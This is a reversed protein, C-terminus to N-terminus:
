QRGGSYRGEVVKAFNRPSVLWELDARFTRGDRGPPARGTLFSSGAVQAFYGRWWEIAEARGLKLDSCVERWRQRMLGKRHDNLVEVRPLTPLAEHYARVLDQHPCDPVEYGKAPAAEPDTPRASPAQGVVEEYRLPSSTIGEERSEEERDHGATVAAPCQTVSRSTKETVGGSIALDHARERQRRKREAATDDERKPQRKPWASIQLHQDILDRQQLADFIAKSKGDALGLACDMAEFDPEDGLTGREAENMSARELLCAWIAIVEAVSAGARRAVLPFKQDTVSGHHWRFWDIGGAM